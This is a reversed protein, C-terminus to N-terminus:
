QSNWVPGNASGGEIFGDAKGGDDHGPMGAM